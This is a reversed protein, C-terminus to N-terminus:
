AKADNSFAFPELPLGFPNTAMQGNGDVDHFAKIAYDGPPLGEFRATAMGEKIPAMAVRVPAGNGDHAAANDFMSMLIQGTQTEIGVFQVTLDASTSAPAAVRAVEQKDGISVACGGLPLAAAALLSTLLFTKM